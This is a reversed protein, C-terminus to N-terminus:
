QTCIAETYCNKATDIAWTVKGDAVTPIISYEYATDTSDLIGDAVATITGGDVITVSAVKGNTTSINAPIGNESPTSCATDVSGSAATMIGESQVCIEVATKYPGVASIVETFRAKKTYTQYAPLAIAALIAVIAVVIM